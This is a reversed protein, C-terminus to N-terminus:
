SQDCQWKGADTNELIWKKVASVRAYVGPNNGYGCYQGFSTVGALM